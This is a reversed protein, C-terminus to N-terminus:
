TAAGSPTLISSICHQYSGVLLFSVRHTRLGGRHLRKEVLGPELDHGPAAVAHAGPQDLFGSKAGAEDGAGADGRHAERHGVHIQQGKRFHGVRDLGADGGRGIHQPQGIAVGAVAVREGHLLRDASIGAAAGGRHQDLVLGPRAREAMVAGFQHDLAVGRDQTAAGGDLGAALFANQQEGAGVGAGGAPEVLGQRPQFGEDGLAGVDQKEVRRLRLRLHAFRHRGAVALRREGDGRGGAPVEHRAVRFQFPM